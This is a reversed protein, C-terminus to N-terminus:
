SHIDRNRKRVRERKRATKTDAIRPDIAGTIDDFDLDLAVLDKVEKALLGELTEYKTYLGGDGYMHERLLTHQNEAWYGRILENDRRSLDLAPIQPLNKEALQENVIPLIQTQLEYTSGGKIYPTKITIKKTTLWDTVEKEVLDSVEIESPDIKRSYLSQGDEPPLDIKLDYNIGTTPDRYIHVDRNTAYMSSRFQLEALQKETLDKLDEVTCEALLKEPLPKIIEQRAEVTSVTIPPHVMRSATKRMTPSPKGRLDITDQTEDYQFQLDAPSSEPLDRTFPLSATLDNFDDREAERVELLTDDTKIGHEVIGNYLNDVQRLYDGRKDESYVANVSRTYSGVHQYYPNVNSSANLLGLTNRYDADSRTAYVTDIGSDVRVQQPPELVYRVEKIGLSNELIVRRLTYADPDEPQDGSNEIRRIIDNNVAAVAKKAAQETPNDLATELLASASSSTGRRDDDRRPPNGSVTDENPLGGEPTDPM